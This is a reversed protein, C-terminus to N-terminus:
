PADWGVRKSLTVMEDLRLNLNQYKSHILNIVQLQHDTRPSPLFRQWRLLQEPRALEVTHESPYNM